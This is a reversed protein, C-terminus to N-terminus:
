WLSTETVKKSIKNVSVLLIINVITNFLGIAASYSYDAKVLGIKYTYTSIIESAAINLDNQLLFAKQFGVNMLSGANMILMIVATPMISPLDIYRILQLKGAGDMKAAEYLSPDVAALAAIYIVASWGMNQWIGSIIYVAPFLGPKAMFNIKEGGFAAIIHNIFGSSPSLFLIIMSCMVVVSIFHPAYTITQVAKRFKLNRTQNLLMALIIPFPFGFILSMGSIVLTNKILRVSQYSDFFQKFHELGVWPSGWIGKAANFDKFAITVGYMPAYCFVLFYIIAPLAMLWLQYHNKRKGMKVDVAAKM